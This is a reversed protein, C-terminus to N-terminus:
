KDPSNGGNGSSGRGDPKRDVGIPDWGTPDSGSTVGLDILLDDVFL